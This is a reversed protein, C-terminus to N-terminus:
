INKKRDHSSINKFFLDYYNTRRTNLVDPYYERAKEFNATAADKLRRKDGLLRLIDAALKRYDGPKHIWEEPLLEGTGGAKSAICPVAYSMAEVVARPVGEQFSPHVYVDINQLFMPIEEHKMRGRIVVKEDIKLKKAEKIVENADGGGVIEYRVDYGAANVIKLAKLAVSYGKYKVSLNGIQGITYSNKQFEDIKRHRRELVDGKIDSDLAVNSCAVTVAGEKHPYEEQLDKQSVYLVYDAAKVTTRCSRESFPALLKGALNGYNWLSDFASGCVEIACPIELERCIPLVIKAFGSPVRIVVGDAQKIIERFENRLKGRKLYLDWPKSYNELLHFTSNPISSLTTNQKETRRGVVILQSDERVYRYLMDAPVGGGSYFKGDRECFPHDSIFCINM